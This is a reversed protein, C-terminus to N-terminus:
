CAILPLVLRHAAPKRKAAAGSIMSILRAPAALRQAASFYDRRAQAPQRVRSFATERDRQIDAATKALRRSVSM